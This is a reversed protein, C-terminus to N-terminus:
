GQTMNAAVIQVIHRDPRSDKRQQRDEWKDENIGLSTNKKDSSASM